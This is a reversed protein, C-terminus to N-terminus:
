RIRAFGWSAFVNEIPAEFASTNDRGSRPVINSARASVYGNVNVEEPKSNAIVGLEL